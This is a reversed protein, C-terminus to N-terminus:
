YLKGYYIVFLYRLAVSESFWYFLAESLTLM